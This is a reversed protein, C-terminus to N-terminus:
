LLMVNDISGEYTADSLNLAGIRLKGAPNDYFGGASATSTKILLSNNSTNQVYMISHTGNYTGAFFVWEDESVNFLPTGYHGNYVKGGTANRVTWLTWGDDADIGFGVTGYSVVPQWQTYTGSPNFWAVLTFGQTESVNFFGLPADYEIYDDVGDFTYCARGDYGGTANYTTGNYVTFNYGSDSVYNRTYTSNSSGDFPSHIMTVPTDNVYWNIVNYVPDGDSDNTSQNYVTLNGLSRNYADSITLVPTTHTPAAANANTILVLTLLLGIILHYHRM